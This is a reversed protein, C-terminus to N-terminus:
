SLDQPLQSLGEIVALCSQEPTDQDTSVTFQAFRAYLPARELYLDKITQGPGIALGRSNPNNLRRAITDFSAQAYVIRGQGQLHRM